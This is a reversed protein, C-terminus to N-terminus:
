PFRSGFDSVTKHFKEWDNQKVAALEGTDYVFITGDTSAIANRVGEKDWRIKNLGKNGVNTTKIPVETDANLNWLTYRGEADVASFV